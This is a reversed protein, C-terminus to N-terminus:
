LRVKRKRSVSGFSSRRNSSISLTIEFYDDRFRFFV